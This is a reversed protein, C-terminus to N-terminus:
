LFLRDTHTVGAFLDEALLGVNVYTDNRIGRSRKGTPIRLLALDTRQFSWSLVHLWEPDHDYHLCFTPTDKSAVSHLRSPAIGRVMLHHYVYLVSSVQHQSRAEKLILPAVRELAECINQETPNEILADPDSTTM